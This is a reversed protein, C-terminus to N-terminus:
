VEQFIKLSYYNNNVQFVHDEENKVKLASKALMYLCGQGALSAVEQGNWTFSTSVNPVRLRKTGPVLSLYDYDLLGNEGIVFQSIDFENPLAITCITCVTIDCVCVKKHM